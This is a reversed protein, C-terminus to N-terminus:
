VQQRRAQGDRSRGASRKIVGNIFVVSRVALRGCVLDQVRRLRACERQDGWEAFGRVAAECAQSGVESIREVRGAPQIGLRPARAHAATSVNPFAAFAAHQISIEHHPKALQPPRLLALRQRLHTSLLALLPHEFPLPLHQSSPTNEPPPSAYIPRDCPPLTLKEYMLEDIEKRSCAGTVAVEGKHTERIVPRFCVLLMARHAVYEDYESGVASAKVRVLYLM